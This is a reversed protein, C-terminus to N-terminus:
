KSKTAPQPNEFAGPELVTGHSKVRVFPVRKTVTDEISKRVWKGGERVWMERTRTEYVDKSTLDLEANADKAVIAHLDLWGLHTDRGVEDRVVLYHKGPNVLSLSHIADRAFFLSPRTWDSSSEPKVWLGVAEGLGNHVQINEAKAAEHGILCVISALMIATKM